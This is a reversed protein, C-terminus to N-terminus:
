SVGGADAAHAQAPRVDYTELVVAFASVGRVAPALIRVVRAVGSVEGSPSRGERTHAERGLRVLFEIRAGVAPVTRGEFLV